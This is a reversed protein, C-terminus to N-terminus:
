MTIANNQVYSFNLGPRNYDYMVFIVSQRARIKIKVIFLKYQALSVWISLRVEVGNCFKQIAVKEYSALGWNKRHSHGLKQKKNCHIM